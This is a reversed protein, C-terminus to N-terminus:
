PLVDSRVYKEQYEMKGLTEEYNMTQVSNQCIGRKTNVNLESLSPEIRSKHILIKALIESENIICAM